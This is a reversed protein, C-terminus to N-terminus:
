LGEEKFNSRFLPYRHYYPCPVSNPDLHSSWNCCRSPPDVGALPWAGQGVAAVDGVEVGSGQEAVRLAM